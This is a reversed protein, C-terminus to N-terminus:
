SLSVTATNLTYTGQAGYTENTVADSGVFVGSSWFGVYAVTAGAPVDFVPQSTESASGASASGMAVVKRAYAPSGGSLESAGTNGPDASHLSAHDIALADLMKNLGATSYAM